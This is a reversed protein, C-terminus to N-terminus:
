TKREEGLWTIEQSQPDHTIVRMAFIGQLVERLESLTLHRYNLAMLEKLSTKKLLKIQEMVRDQDIGLRGRGHGAFAGSATALVEELYQIATKVEQEGLLLEDSWDVRLCMATKIVCAHMRGIFPHLREDAVERFKEDIKQYWSDFIKYAGETWKFEGVLQSIHLLDNVLDKYIRDQKETIDESDLEKWGERGPITYRKHVREGFAIIHRSTYGGGIAEQPLNAAIWAPQVAILCNVCVNFLRDEDQGRTKYHWVDQSDYIDTLVEIMEKPNVALLSAMETSCISIACQTRPKGDVYYTERKATEELEMTFARKSSSDVAVSLEIEKLLRRSLIVPAGKRSAPPGVILIYLNPYYNEIGFPLWVKRQLASAITSIGAWRWFIRPAETKEVYASLGMLWSKFKRPV